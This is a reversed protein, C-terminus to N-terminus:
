RKSRHEACFKALWVGTVSSMSYSCAHGVVVLRVFLPIDEGLIVEETAHGRGVLALGDRHANAQKTAVEFSDEPGLRAHLADIVAPRSRDSVRVGVAKAAESM